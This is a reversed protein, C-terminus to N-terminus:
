DSKKRKLQLKDYDFYEKTQQNVILIINQLEELSNENDNITLLDENLVSQNSLLSQEVKLGIWLNDKIERKISKTNGFRDHFSSIGVYSEYILILGYIKNLEEKSLEKGHELTKETINQLDITSIIQRLQYSFHCLKQINMLLMFIIRPQITNKHEQFDSKIKKIYDNIYFFEKKPENKVSPEVYELKETTILNLILGIQKKLYYQFNRKTRYEEYRKQAFPIIVAAFLSLVAVLLVWPEWDIKDSNEIIKIPIIEPTKM